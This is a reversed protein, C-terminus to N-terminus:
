ELWTPFNYMFLRWHRIVHQQCWLNNIGASRRLWQTNRGRIVGTSSLTWGTCWSVQGPITNLLDARQVMCPLVTHSKVISLASLLTLNPKNQFKFNSKYFKSKIQVETAAAPHSLHHCSLCLWWNDDAMSWHGVGLSTAMLPDCHRSTFPPPSVPCAQQCSVTMYVWLKVQHIM